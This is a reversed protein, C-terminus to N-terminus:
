QGNLPAHLRKPESPFANPLACACDPFYKLIKSVLKIFIREVRFASFFDRIMLLQVLFQLKEMMKRGTHHFFENMEPIGGSERTKAVFNASSVRM